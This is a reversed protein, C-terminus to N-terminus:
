ACADFKVPEKIEDDINRALIYPVYLRTLENEEISLRLLSAVSPKNNRVGDGATLYNDHPRAIVLRRFRYEYVVNLTRRLIMPRLIM